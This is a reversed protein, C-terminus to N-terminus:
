RESYQCVAGKNKLEILFDGFAQPSYATKVVSVDRNKEYVVFSKHETQVKSRSLELTYPFSSKTLYDRYKRSLDSEGKVSIYEKFSLPLMKIEIYRGSLLTALEGSLLMANSGTIYLDVNKLIYLSDCARQFERVQQVEDLFVYNMKNPCLRNEVAKYLKKFDDIDYNDATEFNFSIIQEKEVGDALLEEKFLDFLTSKGCRRIGSVVKIVRKERFARLEKLYEERKIM